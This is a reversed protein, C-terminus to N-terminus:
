ELLQWASESSHRTLKVEDKCRTVQVKRQKLIFVAEQRVRIRELKHASPGQMYAIQAMHLRGDKGEGTDAQARTDALIVGKVRAAYKRYFAFLIYSGMSLGVFIAQQISLQDLLANM